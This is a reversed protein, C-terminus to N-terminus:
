GGTSGRWAWWCSVSSPTTACWSAILRWASAGVIPFLRRFAESVLYNELIYEREAFFPKYYDRYAAEYRAVIADDQLAQGGGHFTDLADVLCEALRPKAGNALSGSLIGGIVYLKFRQNPGSQLLQAEVTEAVELAQSYEDIVLRLAGMDRFGKRGMERDIHEAFLGLLALRTNVSVGRRQLVEISFFRLESWVLMQDAPLNGSPPFRRTVSNRRILESSQEGMVFRIPEPRLLAVRVVEPCALTLAYEAKDGFSNVVRPFMACVDPLASEGLAKHIRCLQSEDLFPCRKEETLQLIGYERPPPEEYAPNKRVSRRFLPALEPNPHNQYADYTDRDVTITWGVCCNDECEAGLCHFDAYYDPTLVPPLTTM